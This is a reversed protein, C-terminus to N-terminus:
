TVTECNCLQPATQREVTGTWSTKRPLVTQCPSTSTNSRCPCGFAFRAYAQLWASPLSPSRNTATNSIGGTSEACFATCTWITLSTFPLFHFKVSNLASYHKNHAYNKHSKRDHIKTKPERSVPRYHHWGQHKEHPKPNIQGSIFLCILVSGTATSEGQRTSM